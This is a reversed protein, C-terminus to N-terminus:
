KGADVVVKPFVPLSYATLLHDRPLEFAERAVEVTGFHTFGKKVCPRQRMRLNCRDRTKDLLTMEAPDELPTDASRGYSPPVLVERRHSLQLIM